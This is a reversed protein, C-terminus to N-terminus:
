VMLVDRMAHGVDVVVKGEVVAADCRGALEMERGFVGHWVGVIESRSRLIRARAVRVFHEVLVSKREPSMSPTAVYMTCRHISAHLVM